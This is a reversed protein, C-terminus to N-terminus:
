SGDASVREYLTVDVGSFTREDVPVFDDSLGERAARQEDDALASRAVLWVRDFPEAAPSVQSAEIPVFGIAREPDVGWDHSPFVPEVLEATSPELSYEFPVRVFPPTLLVGDGPRAEDALYSTVGRWDEVEPNRYWVAATGASIVLVTTVALVFARRRLRTVAWAVLAVLPPLVIIFYRVVLLPKYLYSVFGILLIPVVLWSVVFALKWSSMSTGIRDQRRLRAVVVGVFVIAAVALVAGVSRPLLDRVGEVARGAASEAAWELGASQAGTVLVVLPTVLVLLLAAAEALRHWPIRARPLFLLSAAHAVPVLAGLYHAYLGLAAAVAYGLWVARTPQEVGRVFLYSSSTVVLLLLSYGRAEQAYQVFMGNVVLLPTALLATRTGFLRVVLLYFVPVAALALLVSLVRVTVEDSGLSVWGRLLLSHLGMNGERATVIDTFSAWDLRALMVSVSEDQWLSRGGTFPLTILAACLTVVSVYAARRRPTGLLPPRSRSEEPGSPALDQADVTM